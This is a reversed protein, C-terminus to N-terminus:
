AFAEDGVVHDVYALEDALDSVLGSDQGIAPMADLDIEAPM